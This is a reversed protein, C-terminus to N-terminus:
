TAGRLVRLQSRGSLFVIRQGCLYLQEGQLKANVVIPLKAAHYFPAKDGNESDPVLYVGSALLCSALLM